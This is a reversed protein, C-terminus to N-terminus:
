SGPSGRGTGMGRSRALALLIRRAIDVLGRPVICGPLPELGRSLSFSTRFTETRGGGATILRQLQRRWSTLREGYLREVEPVDIEHILGWHPIAGHTRAIAYLRRRFEDHGAFGRLMLFEVSATRAFQQMGISARTGRTFRISLGFGPPRNNDFFERTLAFVDDIFAFLATSGPTAPLAFELGDIERMCNPSDRWPVGCAPQATMIRFSEKIIPAEDPNRQFTIMANILEPVIRKQGVATALNVINALRSAINEGPVALLSAIATQLAILGTTAATIVVSSAAAYMIGGVFPVFLMWSIGALAVGVAAAILGPILGALGALIPTLPQLNCVFGFIDPAPPRENSAEETESRTSIVCIREGAGDAYPSLVVEMFRPGEYAEGADIIQTQIRARAQNWTTRERDERLRFANVVEVVVAYIVGMRGASVLVANFLETDYVIRIDSCLRGADRASEM